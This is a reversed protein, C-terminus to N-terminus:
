KKLLRYVSMRSIGLNKAVLSAKGTKSFEKKVKNHDLQPKRGSYKNLMKAKLIGEAQRRKVVANEFNALSTLLNLAENSHNHDDIATLNVNENIFHVSAGKSLILSINKTLDRVDRGLRDMSQVLVKDGYSSFKILDEFEPNDSKSNRVRDEFIQDVSELPQQDSSTEGLFFKRYGFKM